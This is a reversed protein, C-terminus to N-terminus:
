PKRGGCSGRVALSVPLLDNDVPQGHIMHILNGVLTEAALRTDQKVTTLSPSFYSAAPLNDFGVVSVEDPVRVGAKRLCKLVGFAILDTAAFVADFDVGSELFRAMDELASTEQNKTHVHLQESASLGHDRL